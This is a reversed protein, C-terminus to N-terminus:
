PRFQNGDPYSFIHYRGPQADNRLLLHYGSLSNTIIVRQYQVLRQKLAVLNNGLCLTKIISLNSVNSGTLMTLPAVSLALALRKRNPANRVIERFGLSKGESKEYELTDIIEQYQVQVQPDQPTSGNLRAIIVLAEEQRDNYILWRPSEPLFPILALVCLPAFGQLLSPIRWAWDSPDLNAAQHLHTLVYLPM